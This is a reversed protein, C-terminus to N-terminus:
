ITPYLAPVRITMNGAADRLVQHGRSAAWQQVHAAIRQEQKSPRPIQRIDDFHSWLLTPELDRLSSSM